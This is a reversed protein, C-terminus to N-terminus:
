DETLSENKRKLSEIYKIAENQNQLANQKLYWHIKEKSEEDISFKNLISILLKNVTDKGNFEMETLIDNENLKELPKQRLRILNYGENTLIESKELDKKQKNSHWFSGDYEVVLKISPIFIDVRVTKNKIRFVEGKKNINKFISILEFIIKIEDKSQNTIRCSPCGQERKSARNSISAEWVHNVDNKCRWFVKQRSGWVVNFPSIANKDSAWEEVLKPHTTALCNSNVIKLNPHTLVNFYLFHFYYNQNM